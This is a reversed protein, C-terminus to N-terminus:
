DCTSYSTKSDFEATKNTFMAQIKTPIIIKAINNSSCNLKLIETNSCLDLAALTNSSVDLIRLKTNKSLDITTLKNSNSKLELLAPNNVLNLSKLQNNSLYLISLRTAADVSVTVLLNNSANLAYLQKSLITLDKLQNNVCNFAALNLNRSLDINTLLNSSCDLSELFSNQSVDLNTIQNLSCDLYTLSKFGEIGSLSKIQLNPISLVQIDEADSRKIQGNITSDSDIKQAILAKEFNSDQLVIINPDIEITRSSCAVVFVGAVLCSYFYKKM